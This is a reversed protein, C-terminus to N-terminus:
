RRLFEIEADFADSSRFWTENLELDATLDTTEFWFNLIDNSDVMSM